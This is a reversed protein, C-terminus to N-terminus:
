SQEQKKGERKYYNYMQRPDSFKKMRSKDKQYREHDLKIYLEADDNRGTYGKGQHHPNATGGVSMGAEDRKNFYEESFLIDM